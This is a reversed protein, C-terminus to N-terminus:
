GPPRNPDRDGVSFLFAGRAPHTDDGVVLWEVVYSGHQRADVSRRMTAKTVRVPGRSVERGDPGTVTIGAGVPTAPESLQVVVEAPARALVAGAPPITEVLRPHASAIGPLLAALVAAVAAASVRKM